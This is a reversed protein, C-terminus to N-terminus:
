LQAIDSAKEIAGPRLKAINILLSSPHCAWCYWDPFDMLAPTGLQKDLRSRITKGFFISPDNRNFYFIGLKWHRDDDRDLKGSSGIVSGQVSVRSGGQGTTISLFICGIVSLAAFAIIAWASWKVSINYFMALQPLSFLAVLGNGMLIMFLSWRRRFIINQQIAIEANAANIQQKAKNIIINVFLFLATLYVQMIPMMLVSGYSKSSWGDPQGHLDFHTAFKEPIEDYKMLSLVIMVIAILFGILYWLHSYVLKGQRFGTNVTVLQAKRTWDPNQIKLNKMQGHFYLYIVFSLVLYISIICAFVIGMVPNDEHYNPMLIVLAVATLLSLLGTLWTYKKRM